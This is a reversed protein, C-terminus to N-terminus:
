EFELGGHVIAPPPLQGFVAQRAPEPGTLAVGEPGSRSGLGSHVWGCGAPDQPGPVVCSGGLSGPATARLGGM